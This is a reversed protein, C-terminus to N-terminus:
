PHEWPGEAGYAEGLYEIVARAEEEDLRAGRRIMRYVTVEWEEVTKRAVEIPALTHCRTCHVEVLQEPPMDRGCRAALLLLWAATLLAIAKHNSSM